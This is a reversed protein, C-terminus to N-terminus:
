MLPKHLDVVVRVRLCRGWAHGNASVEVRIVPGISSAFAEGFLKTMTALPPNHLQIWFSEYAFQLVNILITEDVEQLALLSRDFFWPRGSLVKEKDVMKQFELLFCQDGLEKFKVWGELRWVQSLTVRFAKSNVSKEVLEKGVICLNGHGRTAEQQVHFCLSEEKTLHLTEWQKALEEAANM